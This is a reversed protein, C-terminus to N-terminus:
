HALRIVMGSLDFAAWFYHQAPQSGVMNQPKEKTPNAELMFAFLFRFM